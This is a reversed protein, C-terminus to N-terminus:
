PGVPKWTYDGDDSVVTVEIRESRGVVACEFVRGAAVRERAPCRVQVAPDSFKEGYQRSITAALAEADFVKQAQPPAAPSTTATIAPTGTPSVQNSRGLVVLAMALVAAALLVVASGLAVILRTEGM